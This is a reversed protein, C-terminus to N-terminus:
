EPSFTDVYKLTRKVLSRNRVQLVKEFFSLVACLFMSFAIIRYLGIRDGLVMNYFGKGLIVVLLLVFLATKWKSLKDGRRFDTRSRIAPVLTTVIGFIIWFAKQWDSYPLHFAIMMLGFVIIAAGAVASAGKFGVGYLGAAILCCSWLTTDFGVQSYLFVCILFTGIMTISQSPIFNINNKM